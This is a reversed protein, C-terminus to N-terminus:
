KLEDCLKIITMLREKQEGTVLKEADAINGALILPVVKTERLRNFDGWIKKLEDLRAKKDAAVNLDRILNSVKDASNKVLAQQDPGRKDANKLMTMLSDRVPGIAAKVEATTAATVPFALAFSLCLALLHRVKVSHFM